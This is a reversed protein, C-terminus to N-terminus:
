EYRLTEVPNCTAAKYSQYSVSLMVIAMAVFGSLVFIWWSVGTKYAFGELWRNMGFWSVPVAIVFAIGLCIIFDRNLLVVVEGIRAGNVKRVGIEKTKQRSTLLSLGFLGLVAILIAIIALLGITKAFRIDSEYLKKLTENTFEFEFPTTGGTESWTKKLSEITKPIDETRIRIAIDRCMAPNLGIILPSVAEHLSYMNFDSIVGVVTGFAVHEGIVSKLGLEKVALENVLVGSNIKSKDFDDGKIVKIGMTTAFGYDVFLGKVSVMKDPEDVKPLNITMHNNHPPMWMAGSVSIVDANKHAEQKFLEYNHDGLPIRILGEKSFGLDKTFAYHVQKQVLIMVSLLIIFVSMQFIVMTKRMTHRSGNVVNQGKLTEVLPFSTIKFSVLLGSFAGTLITILILISVSLFLQYNISMNYTKGLMRSIFPLAADALMLALPLAILSILVSELMMQSILTRRSAGCVKRVALAKTQTLAQASTLNLYNICAIVLILIGISALIFLMPKNGLDGSNNDTISASNFYIDSIPQLSFSLRNIDSSHEKGIEMLQKKFADVSTGKALLIYNTVFQGYSWSEKFDLENLRIESNSIVTKALHEMGIDISAILSARLTSNYPIDAYVGCVMLPYEIASLRVKLIKGVADEGGFYKEALKRSILVNGKASGFDNLNGQLIKINFMDFFSAETCIISSESIFDNGKEIEYESINYQHTISEVEAIDKKLTEGLVYPSNAWTTHDIDNQNLVRYIRDRKDFSSNYGLENLVFVLVVTVIGLGLVLGTINIISNVKDTKLHRFSILLNTKINM